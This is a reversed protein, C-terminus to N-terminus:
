SSQTDLFSGTADTIAAGVRAVVAAAAVGVGAEVTVAGDARVAAVVVGEVRGSRGLKM